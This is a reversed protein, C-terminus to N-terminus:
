VSVIDKSEEKIEEKSEEKSVGTYSHQPIINNIKIKKKIEIKTKVERCGCCNGICDNVIWKYIEPICCIFFMAFLIISAILIPACQIFPFMLMKDLLKFSKNEDLFIIYILGCIAMIYFYFYIFIVQYKKESGVIINDDCTCGIMWIIIITGFINLVINAIFSNVKSYDDGFDGYNYNEENSEKEPLIKHFFEKYIDQYKIFCFTLSLIYLSVGIIPIACLYFCEFNQKFIKKNCKSYKTRNLVIIQGCIECHYDYKNKICSDHIFKKKQCCEFDILKTDTIKKCILCTDM